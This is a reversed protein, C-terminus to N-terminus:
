PSVIRPALNGEDRTGRGEDGHFGSDLAVCEALDVNGGVPQPARLRLAAQLVEADRAFAHRGLQDIGQRPHLPGACHHVDPKTQEIRLLAAGDDLRRVFDDCGPM